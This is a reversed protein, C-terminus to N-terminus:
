YLRTGIIKSEHYKCWTGPNKSCFIPRADSNSADSNKRIAIGFYNQLKNIIKDTLRAMGGLPKGDSLPNEKGHKLTIINYNRLWTGVHKQVHGICEAKVITLGPYPAAKVIDSFAKTDGDGIYKNYCVKNTEIFKRFCQLVGTTEMSGSSVEHNIPREHTQM